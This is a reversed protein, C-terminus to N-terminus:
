LPTNDAALQNYNGVENPNVWFTIGNDYISCITKLEDAPVNGEVVCGVTKTFTWHKRVKTNPIKLKRTAYGYVDFFEDIRRLYEERLTYRRLRLRAIGMGYDADSPQSGNAQPPQRELDELQAYIDNVALVDNTLDQMGGIINEAITDQGTILKIPTPTLASKTTKVINNALNFGANMFAGIKKNALQSKNQALYVKYVDSLFPILPYDTLTLRSEMDETGGTSRYNTPILTYVPQPILSYRLTFTCRNTTFYEYRFEACNNGNEIHLVNFPYTYLKKNRPIYSQNEGIGGSILKPYDVYHYANNGGTDDYWPNSYHKIDMGRPALYITLIAEEINIGANLINDLTNALWYGSKFVTFWETTYVGNVWERESRIQAWAPGNYYPTLDITSIVLINPKIEADSTEEFERVDDFPKTIHIAMGNQVYQGMELNEPYTNDGVNDSASHEREVFSDKLEYDFYWTQMPDITYYVRSTENNVYVVKTIFAYFWKEGYNSNQFMMYNCDYLLDSPIGVTMVGNAYRQYTQDTITFRYLQGTSIAQQPLKVKSLFYSHQTMVDPFWITHDFTTDLPVGQLFSVQGFPFIYM